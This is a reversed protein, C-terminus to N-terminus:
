TRYRRGYAVQYIEEKDDQNEKIINKLLEVQYPYLEIGFVDKIFSAPNERYKEVDEDTPFCPLVEM